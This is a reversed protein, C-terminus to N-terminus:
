SSSTCIHATDPKGPLLRLGNEGEGARSLHLCVVPCHLDRLQWTCQSNKSTPCERRGIPTWHFWKAREDRQESTEALIIAIEDGSKIGHWNFSHVYTEKLDLAGHRARRANTGGMHSFYGNLHTTYFAIECFIDNERYFQWIGVLEGLFVKNCTITSVNLVNMRLPPVRPVRACSGLIRPRSSCVSLIGSKFFITRFLTCRSQDTYKPEIRASRGGSRIGM